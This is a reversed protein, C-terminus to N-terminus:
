ILCKNNLLIKHFKVVLFAPNVKNISGGNYRPIVFDFTVKKWYYWMNCLAFLSEISEIASNTVLFDVLIKQNAFYIKPVKKTEDMM